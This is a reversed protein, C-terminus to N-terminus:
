AMSAAFAPDTAAGVIRSGFRVEILERPRHHQRICSVMVELAHDRTDYSSRSLERGDRECVIAIRTGEQLLLVTLSPSMAPASSLAGPPAARPQRPEVM